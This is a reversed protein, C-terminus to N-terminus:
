GCKWGLFFSTFDSLIQFTQKRPAFFPSAQAQHFADVRAALAIKNALLRSAKLRLDPPLKQIFESHYVIGTHPLHSINSFGALHRKQAGLVQINCSPM